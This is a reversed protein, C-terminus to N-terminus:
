IYTYMNLIHETYFIYLILLNAKYYFKGLTCSYCIIIRIAFCISLLWTKIRKRWFCDKAIWSFTKPILYLRYYNFIVKKNSQTICTNHNVFSKNSYFIYFRFFLAHVIGNIKVRRKISKNPKLTLAINYHDLFAIFCLVNIHSIVFNILFVHM